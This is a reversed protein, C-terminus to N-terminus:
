SSGPTRSRGTASASRARGPSRSRRGRRTSSGPATASRSAASRGSRGRNEVVVNRATAFQDEWTLLGTNVFRGGASTITSFQTGSSGDFVLGTGGVALTADGPGARFQADAVAVRGAPGEGLTGTVTFVGFRRFNLTAGAATDVTAGAFTGGGSLDLRGVSARVTGGDVDLAATVSCTGGCGAGDLLGRLRFTRGGAGAGANNALRLTGGPAVDLTGGSPLLSTGGNQVLVGEVRM